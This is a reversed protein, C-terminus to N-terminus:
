AKWPGRVLKDWRGDAHLPKLFPSLSMRMRTSWGPEAGRGNTAQRKARELWQFSDDTAGRHAYVEAVSVAAIEPSEKGGAASILRTLAADAEAKKGTSYYLLALCKDRVPGEPSDLAAARASEFQKQLIFVQALEANLELSDPSLELAKAFESRADALRDMAMLSVALEQRGRASLPDVAVARSQLSVARDVDGVDLAMGASIRLVQPDGPSHMVAREFHQVSKLEDGIDWYYQSARIHAAALGPALTLARQAAMHQKALGDELSIQGEDILVRYAGAIGAWATAYSPDLGVAREFYARARKVDGPGNRNWFYMGQLYQEHADADVTRAQDSGGDGSFAVALAKVVSNAIDSQLTLFDREDRDYAQSWIQEATGADILQATVRVRKGSARVSGELLHTVNLKKAIESVDVNRNRFSFSSTRAIVKLTPVQSLLNLIEEALGDSMYEHDKDPSMDAFPLVAISKENPVAVVPSPPTRDQQAAPLNETTRHIWFLGGGAAVLLLVIAAGIRWPRLAQRRRAPAHVPQSPGSKAIVVSGTTRQDTTEAGLLQRIRHTFATTTEGGPLRTWQARLFEEPVRARDESTDDIVVPILFPVDDAMDWLRRCALHWERRFYGEPRANTQASIVPVFLSCSHIQKKIQTDWADGGRLESQDLWVQIGAARLADCIRAAVDADQSAYSLFVAGYSTSLEPM